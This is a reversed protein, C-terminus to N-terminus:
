QCTRACHSRPGCRPFLLAVVIRSRGKFVSCSGEAGSPQKAMTKTQLSRRMGGRRSDGMRALVNMPIKNWRNAPKQKSTSSRSPPGPTPLTVAARTSAGGCSRAACPRTEPARVHRLSSPHPAVILRDPHGLRYFVSSPSLLLILLRYLSVSGPLVTAVPLSLPVLLLFRCGSM